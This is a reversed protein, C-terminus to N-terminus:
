STPADATDFYRRDINIAALRFIDPDLDKFQEAFDSSGPSTNADAQAAQQSDKQSTFAVKWNEPLSYQYHNDFDTVLTTGNGQEDAKVGAPRPTPSPSPSPTSTSTPTPSPTQTPTPTPTFTNTPTPTDTAFLDAVHAAGSCSLAALALFGAFICVIQQTTSKKM